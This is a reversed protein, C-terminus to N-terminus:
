TVPSNNITGDTYTVVIPYTGGSIASTIIGDSAGVSSPNTLTNVIVIDAPQSISFDTVKLCDNADKLIVTHPGAALFSGINSSSYAGGDFSYEYPPTGDGAYLTAKGTATGYCLVNEIYISSTLALPETVSFTGSVTCGNADIVLYLHSGVALGTAPSVRLAGDIVYTYPATGGTPAFTAIGNGIGNCTVNTVTLNAVVAAPETVVFSDTFTDGNSDYITVNYTGADLAGISASNPYVNSPFGTKTWVYTYPAVGGTTTLVILGNGGGNCTVNTVVGTADLVAPDVLTANFTVDYEFASAGFIVIKFLTAVTTRVEFNKLGLVPTIVASLFQGYPDAIGGSALCSAISVGNYYLQVCGAPNTGSGDLLWVGVFWRVTTEPTTSTTIPIVITNAVGAAVEVNNQSGDWTASNPTWASSPLTFPNVLLNGNVILNTLIASEIATLGVVYSYSGALSAASTYLVGAATGQGLPALDYPANGSAAISFQGTGGVTIPQVIELRASPLAKYPVFITSTSSDGSGSDYFTVQYTRGQEVTISSPVGASEDGQRAITSTYYKLVTIDVYADITCVFTLTVPSFYTAGYTLFVKSSLQTASPVYVATYTGDDTVVDTTNRSASLTVGNLQWESFAQGGFTAPASLVITDGGVVYGSIPTAGAITGTVPVSNAPTSNISIAYAINPTLDYVATYTHDLIDASTIVLGFSYDVGDKLWKIFTYPGSTSPATITVGPKDGYKSVTGFGNNFTEVLTATNDDFDVPTSYASNTRWDGTAATFHGYWFAGSGGGGGGGSGNVYGREISVYGATTSVALLVPKNVTGNTTPATATLAGATESLYHAVGSTLGSLGTILGSTTVTFNDVDAVDSVVGYVEATADASADAEVYATGNYRIVDGVALGHAVQNIAKKVSEGSPPAVWSPAAAGNSQLLQGSSGAALIELSDADSYVVGGNAATLAKETGGDALPIPTSQASLVGSTLKAYGTGTARKLLKGTTSDFLAVESDVSSAPGVVDGSGAAVAAWQPNAAAGQTQLYHGSTGPALGLWSSAGRYLITGQASAIAGDIVDSLSSSVPQAVSGTPNALVEYSTLNPLSGMALDALTDNLVQANVNDYIKSTNLLQDVSGGAGTIDGPSAFDSNQFKGAAVAISSCLLLGLIIRKM